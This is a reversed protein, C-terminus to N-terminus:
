RSSAQATTSDLQTRKEERFTAQWRLRAPLLAIAEAILPLVEFGADFLICVPKRSRGMATEALVGAWGADGTARQWASCPAPPADGRPLRARTIAGVRGDWQRAMVGDQRLMWAPGAAAREDPELALHHAFANTRQTYDLGCDCLRSLVSVERGGVDILWRAWAVPSRGPAAGFPHRYGSVSELRDWLPKPIGASTAVTCFGQQGHRVGEPASTYYIEHAM